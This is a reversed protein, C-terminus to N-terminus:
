YVVVKKIYERNNKSIVAFYVGPNYGYINFEILHKEKVSVREIIRGLMDIIKIEANELESGEIVFKGQAPNPFINISSGLENKKVSLPGDTTFSFEFGSGFDSNFSKATSGDVNQIIVFGSGQGTNAWWQIGDKTNDKVILRYCGNLVYSDSYITNAATFNSVGVVNGLDDLLTYSNDGIYNNTKFVINFSSPIVAPLIFESNYKNNFVYQDTGNNVKKIEAHFVNNSPQLDNQWLGAIPLKVSVTDL